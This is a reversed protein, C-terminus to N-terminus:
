IIKVQEHLKSEKASFESELVIIREHHAQHLVFIVYCNIRLPFLISFFFCFLVFFFFM